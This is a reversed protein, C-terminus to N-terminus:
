FCSRLAQPDLFVECIEREGEVLVPVRDGYRDRWRTDRDVNEILLEFPLEAQMQRLAHEMDDCLHCGARSYMVFQKM